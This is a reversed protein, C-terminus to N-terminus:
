LPAAALLSASVSVRDELVVALFRVRTARRLDAMARRSGPCTASFFVRAAFFGPQPVLPASYFPWPSSWPRPSAASRKGLFVAGSLITAAGSQTRDSQLPHLAPLFRSSFHLNRRVAHLPRPSDCDLRSERWSSTQTTPWPRHDYRVFVESLLSHDTRRL